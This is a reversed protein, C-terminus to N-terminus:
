SKAKTLFTRFYALLAQVTADNYEPNGPMQAGPTVSRPNRVYADFDRPASDAFFAIGAWSIQGKLRGYSKPGHCRLCNQRAIQYGDRVEAEEPKAGHPAIDGLIEDESRFELRVVGWPIQAEEENGLTKFSPTFRPHSILYPGIGSGSGERSKPWDAPAKGNIELVLVPRHAQVYSQPYHGRYLDGCVAVVMAKEGDNALERALTEIEVGRVLVPGGFNPDDAVTYSVQPLGKLDERTLYRVSGAPAGKLDGRIELDLASGRQDRLVLGGTPPVPWAEVGGLVFGLGALTVVSWLRRM